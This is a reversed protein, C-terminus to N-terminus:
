VQSIWSAINEKAKKVNGYHSTISVKVKNAEPFNISVRVCEDTISKILKQGSTTKFIKVPLM